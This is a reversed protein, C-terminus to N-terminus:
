SRDGGAGARDVQSAAQGIEQLLAAAMDAFHRGLRRLREAAPEDGARKAREFYGVAEQWLWAVDSHRAHHFGIARYGPLAMLPRAVDFEAEADKEAWASPLM